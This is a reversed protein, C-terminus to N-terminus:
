GLSHHSWSYDSLFLDVVCFSEIFGGQILLVFVKKNSVEDSAESRKYLMTSTKTSYVCSIDM